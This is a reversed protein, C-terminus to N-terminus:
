KFQNLNDLKKQLKNIQNQLEQKQREIQETQNEIQEIDAWLEKAKGQYSSYGMSFVKLIQFSSNLFDCHDGCCEYEDNYEKDAPSCQCYDGWVDETSFRIRYSFEESPYLFISVEDEHVIMEYNHNKIDEQFEEYKDDMIQQYVSALKFGYNKVEVRRMEEKLENLFKKM